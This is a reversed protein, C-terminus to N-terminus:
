ELNWEISLRNIVLIQEISALSHRREALLLGSGDDRGLAGAAAMCLKNRCTSSPIYELSGLTSEKCITGSNKVRMDLGCHTLVALEGDEAL